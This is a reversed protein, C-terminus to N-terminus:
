KKAKKVAKKRTKKPPPLLFEDEEDDDLDYFDGLEDFRGDEQSTITNMLDSLMDPFGSKVDPLETLLDIMQLATEAAEAGKNGATPDVAKDRSQARIGSRMEAQEVTNCTLVGFIVPKGTLTSIKSIELSIARNIHEDHSTEGKIVAGLCIVALCDEDQAFRQAIFPIEFAGPVWCVRIDQERVGNQRLKDLAGDLLRQTISLNFKSVVVAIYGEPPPCTKGEYTIM